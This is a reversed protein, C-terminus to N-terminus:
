SILGLPKNYIPARSSANFPFMWGYYPVPVDGRLDYSMNRKSGLQVNWFPYDTYTSDSYAMAFHDYNKTNLQLFIIFLILILLIILVKNM